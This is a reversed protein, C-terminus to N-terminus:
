PYPPLTLTALHATISLFAIRPLGHCPAHDANTCSPPNPHSQEAAQTEWFCPPLEQPSCSNPTSPHLTKTCCRQLSCSTCPLGQETETGRKRQRGTAHLEAVQSYPQAAPSQHGFAAPLVPLELPEPCDAQESLGLCPSFPASLRRTQAPHKSCSTQWSEWM